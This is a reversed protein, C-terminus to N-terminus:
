YLGYFQQLSKRHQWAFAALGALGRLSTNQPDVPTQLMLKRAAAAIQDLYVKFKPYQRADHQSFRGIERVNRADDSTFLIHDNGPLPTFMDTAPLIRLGFRELELDSIIKPHLLSMLYSFTSARFGPAFECTVAAGGVHGNRELVLVKRGARALYAGCVLGNHGGGVIIIDYKSQIQM